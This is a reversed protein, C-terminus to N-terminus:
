PEPYVFPTLNTGVVFRQAYEDLAAQPNIDRFRDPYLMKAITLLGIYFRPGYAVDGSIVFVRGNRVANVNQMGPRSVIQSHITTFNIGDKTPSVVKIIVDPNETMVWEANVKPAAVSLNEAINRGGARRILLGSGSSGPQASYDSYGEFYVRPKDVQSVNSVRSKVLDQWTNVLAAYSSADNERSTLSGLIKADSELTDLRYCDIYLIPIRNQTFPDENKPKSSAYSVVLDPNLSLVKEINPTQWSGISGIGAFQPGLLPHNKVTDSAGTIRDRAGLAVLLEAANTNVVVM